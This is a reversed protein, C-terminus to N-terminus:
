RFAAVAVPEPQRDEDGRVSGGALRMMMMMMMAAHTAKRSIVMRWDGPGCARLRGVLRGAAASFRVGAGATMVSSRPLVPTRTALHCLVVTGSLFSCITLRMSALVAPAMAAPRNAAAQELPEV